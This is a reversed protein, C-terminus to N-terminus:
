RGPSPRATVRQLTAKAEQTLWTRPPGAALKELLRRSEPSGLAELAEVARIQRVTEPALKTGDLRALLEELHRRLELSPKDALAKRLAPAARDALAELEKAAQERVVFKDDDLDALLQKIRQNNVPQIRPLETELFAVARRPSALLRGVAAYGAAADGALDQWDTALEEPSRETQERQRATIRSVDWLYATQDIGGSILTRGDPSFAVALVWGRGAFPPVEKGIRALEKGSPLDWLRVTGDMSGSALTRGDPSFAVACVDNTHRTLRARQGGTATERLSIGHTALALTRGDPSLAIAYENWTGELGSRREKGTAVDWARIQAGERGLREVRKNGEGPAPGGGPVAPWGGPSPPPPIRVRVRSFLTQGDPSFTLLEIRSYRGRMDNLLKGTAFDYLRIEARNTDLTGWGGCAIQKGDPALAACLGPFDRVRVGTRRNWVIVGRENPASQQAVVVYESDPTFLVQSLHAPKYDRTPPVEIRRVEGGTQADWLRILGDWGATVIWRGDPSCAVSTIREQHGRLSHLLRVEDAGHGPGKQPAPQEGIEEAEAHQLAMVCHTTWGTGAAFLGLVVLLMAITKMKALSMAQLVGHALTAVPPSVTGAATQGLAFLAAMRAAAAVTAAPVSAQESLVAILAAGSLTLGRRSLRQRLLERARALRGCVTGDCWGLQRAAETYSLGELYCLVLPARYKEPLRDLEEDLLARLDRGEVAAFPDSGKPVEAQRERLHRRLITVRSKQAIRTAVAHLWNALSPGVRLSASKHLLVLFVAQFADEADQENHLRRRCVSWVLAAHRRVLAAFASEDHHVLYNRLLDRDSTEVTPNHLNRLYRLLAALATQAM